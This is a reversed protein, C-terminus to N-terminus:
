VVISLDFHAQEAGAGIGTPQTALHFDFRASQAQDAGHIAKGDFDAHSFVLLQIRKHHVPEIPGLAGGFDWEVTLFWEEGQFEGDLFTGTRVQVGPISEPKPKDRVYQAGGRESKGDGLTTGNLGIGLLHDPDAALLGKRRPVSLI